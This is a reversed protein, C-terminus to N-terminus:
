QRDNSLAAAAGGIGWAALGIRYLHASPQDLDVFLLALSTALAIAAMARMGQPGYLSPLRTSLYVGIAGATWGGAAGAAVDLPWHAGVAIRSFAVLGAMGLVPLAARWRTEPKPWALIIAAAVVFATTAHGSPFSQVYLKQGILNFSEPQLVGAPRLVDFYRKGGQSFLIALPAALLASALWRPQTKLTPAILALAGLVSGCLTTIAWFRAPLANGAAANLEIFLPTNRGGLAIALTLGALVLAPVLAWALPFTAVPIDPRVADDDHLDPSPM